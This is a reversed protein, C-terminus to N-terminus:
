RTPRFLRWMALEDDLARVKEVATELTRGQVLEYFVLTIVLISAYGFPAGEPALYADCGGAFFADALDQTGTDCGTAIVTRGPLNVTARLDDPTLWRHFPQFREVQPALDPLLIRGEDGHCALVVYPATAETGDLVRVAHRAQGVPFRNVKVRMAELVARLAEDGGGEFAVLDVSTWATAGAQVERIRSPRLSALWAAEEGADGLHRAMLTVEGGADADLGIVEWGLRAYFDRARGTFVYLREVGLARAQQECRRVLTTGIGRNRYEPVVFLGSLWPWMDWLDPRDEMDHAILSVSGCPEGDAVAVFLVPLGDSATRGALKEVWSEVSGEPDEDGWIDWHWRGAVAALDPRDALSVIELKM